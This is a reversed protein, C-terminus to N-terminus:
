HNYQTVLTSYTNWQGTIFWPVKISLLYSENRVPKFKFIMMYIITLWLTNFVNLFLLTRHNKPRNVVKKNPFFMDLLKKFKVQNNVLSPHLKAWKTSYSFAGFTSICRRKCHMFCKKKCALGFLFIIIHEKITVKHYSFARLSPVFNFLCTYYGGGINKQILQRKSLASSSKEGCGRVTWIEWGCVELIVSLTQPSVQPWPPPAVM